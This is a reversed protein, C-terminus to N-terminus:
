DPPAAWYVSQVYIITDVCAPADCRTEACCSPRIQEVVRSTQQVVGVKSMCVTTACEQSPISPVLGEKAQATSKLLM